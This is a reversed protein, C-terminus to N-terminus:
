FPKIEEYVFKITDGESLKTQSVGTESTEGNLYFVWFHKTDATMGNITTVFEGIGEYTQYEIDASQNLLEFATIGSQTATFEHEVTPLDTTETTLSPTVQVIENPIEESPTAIKKQCGSIVIAISSILLIKSLCKVPM